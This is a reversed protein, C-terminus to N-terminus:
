MLLQLTVESLARLSLRKPEPSSSRVVPVTLLLNLRTSLNVSATRGPLDDDLWVIVRGYNALTPVLDEAAVTGLLAVGDALGTKSIRYASLIDETVVAANTRTGSLSTYLCKESGKVSLYKPVHKPRPDLLSRGTWFVMNGDKYVPLIVRGTSPSYCAGLTRIDEDELYYQYFWARAEIPWSSLLQTADHPLQVEGTTPQEEAKKLLQAIIDAHRVGAGKVRRVGHGGCNHCYALVADNTRKIYLRKKTDSGASCNTHNTNIQEGVKSPALDIYDSHPIRV